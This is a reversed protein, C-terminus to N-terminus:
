GCASDKTKAIVKGDASFCMSIAGMAPFVDKFSPCRPSVEVVIILDRMALRTQVDNNALRMSEMGIVKDIMRIFRNASELRPDFLADKVQEEFLDLKAELEADTKANRGDVSIEIIIDIRTSFPPTDSQIPNYRTGDTYVVAVPLGGEGVIHPDQRSDYVRDQAM